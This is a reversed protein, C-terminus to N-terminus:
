VSGLLKVFDRFVGGDISVDVMDRMIQLAPFAQYADRYVRNTTLADYIDVISIIRVDLGIKEGALGSPYGSGNIKEHHHLVSDLVQPSLEGTSKLAEHGLEPHVKVTEFDDKTLPGDKNLVTKNVYSKGVDHFLAGYGLENLKKGPLYGTALGLAVAYTMVHVSHTFTRYDVSSIGLVHRLADPQDIIFGITSDVTGKAHKVAKESAPNVLLSKVMYTATSYVVSTKKDMTANKDSLTANLNMELYESLKDSTEAKVYVFAHKRDALRRRTEEDFPFGPNRYKLYKGPSIQLYIQCDFIADMQLSDLPLAIYDMKPFEAKSEGAEVTETKVM